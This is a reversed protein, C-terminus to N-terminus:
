LGEADKMAKEIEGWTDWIAKLRPKFQASDAGAELQDFLDHMEGRLDPHRDTVVQMNSWAEIHQNFAKTFDGPCREFNMARMGAVYQEITASLSIKECAHNRLTGLSDDLAIVREICLKGVDSSATAVSDGPPKPDGCTLLLASSLALFFM